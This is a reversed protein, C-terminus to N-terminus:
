VDAHIQRLEAKLRYLAYEPTDGFQFYVEEAPAVDLPGNGLVPTQACWAMFKGGRCPTVKFHWKQNPAPQNRYAVVVILVAITVAAAYDGMVLAAGLVGFLLVLLLESLPNM